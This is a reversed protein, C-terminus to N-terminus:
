QNALETSSSRMTSSVDPNGATTRGTAAAYPWPWDTTSRSPSTVGAQSCAM